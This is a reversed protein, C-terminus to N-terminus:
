TKGEVWGLERLRGEIALFLWQAQDSPGHTLYGVRAVKAPLSAQALGAAPLFGM